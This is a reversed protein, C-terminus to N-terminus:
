ADVWVPKRKEIFARIGEDGDHSPLVREIYLREVDDLRERLAGASGAGLALAAVAQRLAYASLDRLSRGYFEHASQAPDEGEKALETVFGLQRATVADLECGTLLLRETWPLGIRSPGLVALVPPIVALKVEPCAFVASQSAFVFRTALALEFAGGLCRGRVVSATPVPFEAVRRILSHFTSLMEPARERQHEEVSAGFSFHRGEGEILVLKLGRADQSEALAREISRLLACTLVNGGDRAFRVRLVGGDESREVSVRESM